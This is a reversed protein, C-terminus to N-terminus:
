MPKVIAVIMVGLAVVAGVLTVNRFAKGSRQSKGCAVARMAGVIWGHLASLGLVLVLKAQLWGGLFWGADWILWLGIGWALVMAPNVVSQLLQEEVRSLLKAAAPDTVGAHWSLLYTLGLMGGIWTVASAVHIAKLWLYMWPRAVVVLGITIVAPAVLGIVARITRERSDSDM